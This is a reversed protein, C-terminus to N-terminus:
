LSAFEPLREEYRRWRGVSRHGLPQRVQWASLTRVPASSRHFATIVESYAMSMAALLPELAVEPRTVLEEYDIRIVDNGIAEQWYDLLSRAANHFVVLDDPSSAYEHGNVFDAFLMSTCLDFPQRRLDVVIASPHLLKALGADLYNGLSKDVVWDAEAALKPLGAKWRQQLELVHAPTLQQVANPYGVKGQLLRAIDIKTRSLLPSEGLTYVGDLQGLMRELLTTGSRPLGAILVVRPRGMEGVGLRSYLAPRFIRRHADIQNRLAEADFPRLRRRIANGSSMAAFAREPQDAADFLGALALHLSARSDAATTPDAIRQEITSVLSAPAEGRVLRAYAVYAENLTPALETARKLASRAGDFNGTQLRAVGLNYQALAHEPDAQIASEFALTAGDVDDLALRAAGLDCLLGAHGPVQELGQEYCEVAQELSGLRQLVEGLKLYPEPADPHARIARVCAEAASKPNGTALFVGAIGVSAEPNAPDEALVWEYHQRSAAWDQQLQLLNALKLTVEPPKGLEDHRRRLFDIGAKLGRTAAVVEAWLSVFVPSNEHDPALSKGLKRASKIDGSQLAAALSDLASRDPADSM